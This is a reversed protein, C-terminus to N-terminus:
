QIGGATTYTVTGANGRIEGDATVAYPVIEFVLQDKGIATLDTPIGTIALAVIYRGASATFVDCATGDAMTGTLAKYVTTSSVTWTRGTSKETIVFGVRTFDAVNASDITAAFRINFTDGKMDASPQCGEYVPATVAANYKYIVIDKMTTNTEAYCSFLSDSSNYRIWNRTNTGQAKVTAIGDAAIEIKWSGNEDPEDKTKLQNSSGSAAYLYGNDTYLAYTGDVAGAEVILTQAGLVTVTDGDKTASIQGINNTRQEKSLAFNFDKAVIIIRDGVALDAVDSVLTYTKETEGCAACVGNVVTGEHCTAPITESKITYTCGENTCHSGETQGAGTCTAAKAEDDITMSHNKAPIIIDDYPENCIECYQKQLGTEECTADTIIDGAVYKHEKCVIATCGDRDCVSDNNEDIHGLAEIETQEEIAYGCDLCKLGATKGPETCTAPSAALSDTNTHKCLKYISIDKQGSEYCSFLSSTSNYRLWNRTNVGQAKVTAIGDATITITWSSNDSLANETKLYNSSNSAAYLYGAGTNLAFTDSKTGAELTLIQADDGFAITIDSKTVDAQGRNNPNTSFVYSLLIDVMHM